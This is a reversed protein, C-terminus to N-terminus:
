RELAQAGRQSGADLHLVRRAPAGVGPDGRGRRLEQALDLHAEEGGVARQQAGLAAAGAAERPQAGVALRHGGALHRGDLDVPPQARGRRALVHDAGGPEAALLQREVALRREVDLELQRGAGVRGLAVHARRLVAHRDHEVLALLHLEDQTVLGRGAARVGGERHRAGGELDVDLRRVAGVLLLELARRRGRRAGVHGDDDDPRGLLDLALAEIALRETQRAALVIEDPADCLGVPPGDGHDVRARRHQQRPGVLNGGHEHGPEGALLEAVRQGVHEEAVDLGAPAQGGGPGGRGVPQGGRPRGVPREGVVLAEEDAIAGVVTVPARRQVAETM